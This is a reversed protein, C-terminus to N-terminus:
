EMEMWENALDVARKFRERGRNVLAERAKEYEGELMWKANQNKVIDFEQWAAWLEKFYHHDRESRINRELQQFCMELQREQAEKKKHWFKIKEMDRCDIMSVMIARVGLACEVWQDIEKQLPHLEKASPLKFQSVVSRLSLSNLTAIQISENIKMINQQQVEASALVEESGAAVQQIMASTHNVSDTISSTSATISNLREDVEKMKTITNSLFSEMAEYKNVASQMTNASVGVTQQMKDILERLNKANNTVSLVQEDINVTAQKTQLALKSIEQAVVSFGKGQEGARAAEINANLALLQTQDSIEEIFHTIDVIKALAQDLKTMKEHLMASEDSILRMQEMASSIEQKGSSVGDMFHLSSHVITSNSDRVEELYRHIEAMREAMHQVYEASDQVGTAIESITSTIGDVQEAVITSHSSVEEMKKHLERSSRDVIRVLTKLSRITRKLTAFLSLNVDSVSSTMSFDGVALRLLQHKVQNYTSLRILKIM